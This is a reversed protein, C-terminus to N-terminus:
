LAVIVIPIICHINIIIFDCVVIYVGTSFVGADVFDCGKEHERVADKYYVVVVIFVVGM